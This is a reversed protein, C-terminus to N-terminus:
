GAGEGYVGDGDLDWDGDLGAYYLDAPIYSAVGGVVWVPRCPIVEDDGGLLVYRTRWTRHADAIFNRVQTQTDNGKGGHSYPNGWYSPNSKIEEVTVLCASLNILDSAGAGRTRKWDLLPQFSSRLEDSTIIVYEQTAEGRVGLVGEIEETEHLLEYADVQGPNDIRISIADLDPVDPLQVSADPLLKLVITISPFYTVGCSLTEYAVPVVRFVAINLGDLLQIGAFEVQSGPFRLAPSSPSVSTASASGPSSSPDLSSPQHGIEIGQVRGLTVPQATRVEHGALSRGPPLLIKVTKFPLLPEGVAGAQLLGEIVVSKSSGKDMIIPEQFTVVFSSYEVSSDFDSEAGGTSPALASPLLLCATALLALLATKAPRCGTSM